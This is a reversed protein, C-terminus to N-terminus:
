PGTKAPGVLRVILSSIGLFPPVVFCWVGLRSYLLAAAGCGIAFVLINTSMRALRSGPQGTEGARAYVKDALDMMIQTTTGTMVTSPPASGLHIRHVANQTAM